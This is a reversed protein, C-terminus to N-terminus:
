VIGEQKRQTAITREIRELFDRWTRRRKEWPSEYAPNRARYRDEFDHVFAWPDAIRKGKKNTTIFDNVVYLEKIQQRWKTASIKLKEAERFMDEREKIMGRMWPVPRIPIRSMPRAEFPLFGASRLITYRQQRRTRM